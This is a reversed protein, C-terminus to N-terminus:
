AGSLLAVFGNIDDFTLVGDGNMDGSLDPDLQPYAARYAAPNSLALVFANIDDFNVLGDDNMDAPIAVPASWAGRGQTAAIIRRRPTPELRLDIVPANPLGAVYHHWSGGGDISQYVGDDAGAYIVPFVGRIDVAITNVPVDPFAATLTEWNQGGDVSRRIQPQGFSAVALYVIQPNTPHVFIERTV